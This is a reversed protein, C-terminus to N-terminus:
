QITARLLAYMKHIALKASEPAIYDPNHKQVDGGGDTLVSDWLCETEDRFSFAVDTKFTEMMKNM